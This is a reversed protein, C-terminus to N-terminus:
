SKGKRYESPTKGLVEKFVRNMSRINKFGTKEAIDSPHLNTTALLKRANDLRLGNVYEKFNQNTHKKFFASFYFPNMYVHNAVSELTINEHYHERIFEKSRAIASSGSATKECLAEKLQMICEEAAGRAESFRQASGINESVNSFVGSIRAAFAEDENMELAGERLKSLMSLLYTRTINPAGYSIKRIKNMASRAAAPLEEASHEFLEQKLNKEVAGLEEIGGTNRIEPVNECDIVLKEECYFCLSQLNEASEYSKPINSMGSVTKGVIVATSQGTEHYLMEGIEEATRLIERRRNKDHNILVCIAKGRGFVISNSDLFNKMKATLSFRILESQQRSKGTTDTYINLATYFRMQEKETDPINDQYPAADEVVGYYLLSNETKADAGPLAAVAKAVAELMGERSVPKTLYDIAGGRLADRAYSFESFGSIFIVQTDLKHQRIYRMAEIGNKGPMSVDTILIDCSLRELCEVIEDYCSCLGVIEIGLENWDLLRCLGKIIIEEDDAIIMKYM